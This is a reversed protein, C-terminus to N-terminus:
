RVVLNEDILGNYDDYMGIPKIERIKCKSCYKEIGYYVDLYSNAYADKDITGIQKKCKDCIIKERL